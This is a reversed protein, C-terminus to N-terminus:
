VRKAQFLKAIFASRGRQKPRTIIPDGTSFIRVAALCLLGWAAPRFFNSFDNRTTWLLPGLILGWIALAYSSRISVQELHVLGYALLFFYLIVGGVGFNMYPEAIASFGIGGYNKYTWPEAIATIWHSPPLDDLSETAPAEWRLALNPIIAKLAILYTKGHRYDAPGILAETEILPRISQGMEAPADLFNISSDFSRDNLPKDRVVGMIPIAVLLFVSVLWPFWRPFETGKKLAVTYVILCAILAPGRFGLYFLMFAWLLACLFTLRLRQKSAGAVALCLGISAFTMGTGFLRPDSEARLRFTDSYTLKYYGTPDLQVLGLVFLIAAFAFLFSGAAFVQSNELKSDREIPFGDSIAEGRLALLLGLQYALISYTVLALGGTLGYPAFWPARNIDYVGLAWPVVLGLHFLGLLALYLMPGSTFKLGLVLRSLVLSVLLLGGATLVAASNGVRVHIQWIAFM